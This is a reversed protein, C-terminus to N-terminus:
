RWEALADMRVLGNARKPGVRLPSNADFHKRSRDERGFRAPGSPWRASTRLVFCTNSRTPPQHDEWQEPTRNSSTRSRSGLPRSEQGQWGGRVKRPKRVDRRVVMELPQAAIAGPQDFADGPPHLGQGFPVEGFAGSSAGGIYSLPLAGSEYHLCVHSFRPFDPTKANEV